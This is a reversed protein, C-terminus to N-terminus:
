EWIRSTYRGTINDRPQPGPIIPRYKLNAAGVTTLNGDGRIVHKEGRMSETSSLKESLAVIYNIAGAELPYDRLVWIIVLDWGSNLIYEVRENFRAAHRGSGHWNGGYIEVAIPPVCIALDVNYKGIAKQACVNFGKEILMEAAALEIRSAFTFDGEKTHARKILEKEPRRKGRVAAHAAASLRSREEPPTRSMRIYMSESGNRPTIGNEKLVRVIVTRSVNFRGALSKVSEGSNFLDIVDSVPVVRGRNRGRIEIGANDLIKSITQICTKYIKAIKKISEGSEYLRIVDRADSDNWIRSINVVEL